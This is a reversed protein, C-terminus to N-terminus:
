MCPQAGIGCAASRGMQPISIWVPTAAWALTIRHVAVALHVHRIDGCPSRYTTIFSLAATAAVSGGPNSGQMPLIVHKMDCSGSTSWPRVAGRTRTSRNDGRPTYAGGPLDPDVGSQLAGQGFM